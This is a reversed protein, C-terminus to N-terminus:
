ESCHIRQSLTPEEQRAITPAVVSFYVSTAASTPAVNLTETVECLLYPEVTAVDFAVSTIAGVEDLVVVVSGVVDVGVVGVVVVVVGAGAGVGGDALRLAAPRSLAWM